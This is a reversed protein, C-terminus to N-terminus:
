HTLHVVRVVARSRSDGHRESFMASALSAETRAATQSRVIILVRAESCHLVVSWM